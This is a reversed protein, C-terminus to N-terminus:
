GWRRRVWLVGEQERAPISAVLLEEGADKQYQPRAGGLALRVQLMNPNEGGSTCHRIACVCVVAM